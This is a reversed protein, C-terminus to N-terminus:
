SLSLSPSYFGSVIQALSFLFLCYKLSGAHFRRMLWLSMLSVLPLLPTIFRPQYYGQLFNFVLQGAIILVCAVLFPQRILTSLKEPSFAVSAILLVLPVIWLNGLSTKINGSFAHYKAVMSEMLHGNELADLIWVFQGLGAEYSYPKDLVMNVVLWVLLPWLFCFVSSLVIKWDIKQKETYAAYFFGCLFMPLWLITSQYILVCLGLLVCCILLQKKTYIKNMFGIKFALIAIIPVSIGFFSSHPQWFFGQIFDSNMMFVALLFKNLADNGINLFSATVWILSLVLAIHLFLYSLYVSLYVSKKEINSRKGYDFDIGDAITKEIIVVVPTLLSYSFAGFAIHLPRGRWPNKDDVIYGPFNLASEAISKSDCNHIFLVQGKYSVDRLCSNNETDMKPMFLFVLPFLFVVLVWAKHAFKNNMM